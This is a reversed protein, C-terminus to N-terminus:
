SSRRNEPVNLEQILTYTWSYDTSSKCVVCSHETGPRAPCVECPHGSGYQDWVPSVGHVSHTPVGDENFVLHPREFTSFNQRTGDDYYVWPDFPQAEGLSESPSVSYHLTRLDTSYAHGSVLIPMTQNPNPPYGDRYDYLHVLIHWHEHPDMYLDSRLVLTLTLVAM